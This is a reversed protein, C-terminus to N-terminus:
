EASAARRARIAAALQEVGHRIPTAFAPDNAPDFGSPRQGRLNVTITADELVDASIAHLVQALAAPAHVSLPSANLLLVPKGVIETGGVLWDLANKLSGPISHAYEPTSFLLGDASAVASKWRAIAAHPQDERDPNFHPLEGIGDFLGLECGAPALRVATRLLLTNASDARLSGSVGLIKAPM